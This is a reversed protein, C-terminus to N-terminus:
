GPEEEDEDLDDPERDYITRAGDPLKEVVFAERGIRGYNYRVGFPTAVAFPREPRPKWDRLAQAILASKEDDTM